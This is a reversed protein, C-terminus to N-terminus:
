SLGKEIRWQVWTVAQVVYVPVDNEDAVRQYAAAIRDYVGVRALLKLERDTCHRGMYISVAHRDICAESDVGVICSYFARVKRGGLVDLPNEGSRIRNAKDVNNRTHGCYGTESLQWALSVNVDWAKQPSLAALIGAGTGDRFGHVRDITAGIENATEYWKFGDAVATHSARAWVKAINRYSGRLVNHTQTMENESESHM